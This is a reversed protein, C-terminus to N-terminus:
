RIFILMLIDLYTVSSTVTLLILVFLDYFLELPLLQRQIGSNWMMLYETPLQEGYRILFDLHIKHSM